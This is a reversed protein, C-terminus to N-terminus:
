CDDTGTPPEAAEDEVDRDCLEAITVAGGTAASLKKAKSYSDLRDARRAIRWVTSYDLGSERALRRIRRSARRNRRPPPPAPPNSDRM